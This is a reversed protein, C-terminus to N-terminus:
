SHNGGFVHVRNRGARKAEYLAEDAREVLAQPEQADLPFTSVGISVTMHTAVDYARITHREITQRIREGVQRGGERDTEPLAISFEEGGLRGFLDVERLTERAVRAVERLAVDGVLHGHEDNYKKFHDLDLVLVTLELSNKRSREFEELYRELFHRRRFVGTLGDILALEQVTEYLTDKKIEMSLQGALIAFKESIEESFNEMTLVGLLRGEFVLPIAMFSFLSAPLTLALSVPRRAEPTVWIVEMRESVSQVIQRDFNMVGVINPHSRLERDILTIRRKESPPIMPRQGEQKQIQYIREIGGSPSPNLLILKVTEFSFARRLTGSFVEFTDVFELSANMSKTLEYLSELELVNQELNENMVLAREHSQRVKVLADQTSRIGEKIGSLARQWSRRSVHAIFATSACLVLSLVVATWPAGLGRGWAALVAALVGTTIWVPLISRARLALLILLQAGGTLVWM